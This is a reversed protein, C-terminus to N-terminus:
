RLHSVKQQRFPGHQPVGEVGFLSSSDQSGRLCAGEPFRVRVRGGRGTTMISSSFCQIGKLPVPFPTPGKEGGSGTATDRRREVGDQRRDRGSSGLGLPECSSVVAVFNRGLFLLGVPGLSQIRRAGPHPTGCPGPRVLSSELGSQSVYRKKAVDANKRSSDLRTGM